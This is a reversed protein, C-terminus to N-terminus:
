WGHWATGRFDEARSGGVFPPLGCTRKAKRGASGSFAFNSGACGYARVFKAISGFRKGFRKLRFRVQTDAFGDEGTENADAALFTDVGYYRTQSPVIGRKAGGVAIAKGRLRSDVAQECSAFFADADLHIIM